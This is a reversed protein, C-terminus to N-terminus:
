IIKEEPIVTIGQLLALALPHQLTGMVLIGAGGAESLSEFRVGAGPHVGLSELYHRSGKDLRGLSVVQYPRGPEGHLLSLPTQTSTRPIPRGMPDVEPRGLFADLHEMVRSSVGHELLEAEQHVEALPIGLTVVLFTELLRHKRLMEAATAEGLPTLLCGKFPTYKAFGQDHLTKMMSTVTGPSVSMIDAIAKPTVLAEKKDIVFKYISKLYDEVAQSNM